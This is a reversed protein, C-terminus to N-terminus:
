PFCVRRPTTIPPEGDATTVGQGLQGDLNWGWCWLTEDDRIACSHDRGLGLRLWADGGPADVRTPLDRRETDGVGLQGVDNQGWCWLTRDNRIACTHSEGADVAAWDAMAVRLPRKSDIDVASGVGLQGNLGGGWCWLEGNERIACTHFDGAAVSTWDSLCDGSPCGSQIEEFRNTADGVGLEGSDNMGWCWLTGDRKIACSHFGGSGLEIWDTGDDIATPTAVRDTAPDVGSEGRSNGGWCLVRGDQTLGCSFYWGSDLADWAPDGSPPPQPTTFPSGDTHGLGLNANDNWGWCYRDAGLLWCTHDTAAVGTGLLSAGTDVLAPSATAGGGTGLQGVRNSGWCFLERTRTSACTHLHGGYVSFIPKATVCQGGSCADGPCGCSTGDTLPACTKALCQHCEGCSPASRTTTGPASPEFCAGVCMGRDCTRGDGCTTVGRCSEDFWLHLERLADETYGAVAEARAIEAGTADLLTGVIRFVRTADGGEPVIPVRALPGVGAPPPRTSEHAVEGEADEVVVRISAADARISPEAHFLVIVQTSPHSGCSLLAVSLLAVFGLSSRM